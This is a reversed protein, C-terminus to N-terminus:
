FKVSVGANFDNRVEENSTANEYSVFATVDKSIKMNFGANGTVFSRNNNQLKSSFTASSAKHTGSINRDGIAREQALGLEFYPSFEINRLKFANEREARVAQRLKLTAFSFDSYSFASAGGGNENIEGAYTKIYSASLKPLINWFDKFKFKKAVQLNASFDSDNSNSRAASIVGANDVTRSNNNDHYGYSLALSAFIDDATKYNAYISAYYSESDNSGQNSEFDLSSDIYGFAAGLKIQNDLQKEVGFALGYSNQDFGTQSASSDISRNRYINRVWFNRDNNFAQRSIQDNLTDNFLIANDVTSQIQASFNSTNLITYNIQANDAAYVVLVTGAGNLTVVDFTGDIAAAELITASGSTTNNIPTVNLNVGDEITINGTAVIKDATNGDIEVDFTSGTEFIVNGTVNITGISNGPAATGGDAIILDTILTNNGSLTMNDAITLIATTLQGNVKFGTSGTFDVTKGTLDINGIISNNGVFNVNEINEVINSGAAITLTAGNINLTDTGGRADIDGTINVVNRITITDDENSLSIADRNGTVERGTVSVAATQGNMTLNIASDVQAVVGVDGTINAGNTLNVISTTAASSISVAYAYGNVINSQASVVGSINATVVGTGNNFISVAGGGNQSSIVSGSNTITLNVNEDAQQQISFAYRGHQNNILGNITSNIEGETENSLIIASLDEVDGIEFSSGAQSTFTIGQASNVRFGRNSINEGIINLSNFGDFQSQLFDLESSALTLDAGNLTLSNNGAGGNVAGDIVVDGRVTVSDNQNAFNAAVGNAAILSAQANRGDLTLNIAGGDVGQIGDAVSFSSGTIAFDGSAVNFNGNITSNGTVNFNEFGSIVSNTLTLTASNLTLTDTGDGGVVNGTIASIGTITLADNVGGFTAAAGGNGNLSSAELILTLSNDADSTIAGTISSNNLHIASNEKNIITEFGSVASNTLTLTAGNGNAGFNLTDDGAGGVINGTISSTGIITLTDNVGGFTAAAGGNGNLSSANLTLALTNDADSTISGTISSGQTLTVTSNEKNIITEFGSIDSSTLTLNAGNYYYGFNFVDTGAGGVIDGTVVVNGSINVVDDAGALNIALRDGNAEIATLTVIDADTQADPNNSGSLNVTVKTDRVVNIANVGTLDGGDEVIIFNNRATNTDEDDIIFNASANADLNIAAGGNSIVNGSINVRINGGVNNYAKINIANGTAGQAEITATSGVNLNLGAINFKAAAQNASTVVGNINVNLDGENFGNVILGAAGAGTGAITATEGITLTSEITQNNVHDYRAYETFLVAASIRADNNTSSQNLSVDGNITVNSSGYGTYNVFTLASRNSVDYYVTGGGNHASATGAINVNEELTFNTNIAINRNKTFDFVGNKVVIGSNENAVINITAAQDDDDGITINSTGFVRPDDATRLTQDPGADLTRTNNITLADSNDTPDISQNLTFTEINGEGANDDLDCNVTIAGSGATNTACASYARKYYGFISSAVAASFVLSTKLSSSNKNKM